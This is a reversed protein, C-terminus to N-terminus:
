ASRGQAPKIWYFEPDGTLDEALDDIARTLAERLELTFHL